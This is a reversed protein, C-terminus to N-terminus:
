IYSLVYIVDKKYQSDFRSIVAIVLSAMLQIYQSRLVTRFRLAVAMPLWTKM